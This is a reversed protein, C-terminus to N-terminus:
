PTPAPTDTTPMPTPDAPATPPAEPAPPADPKVLKWDVNGTDDKVNVAIKGGVGKADQADCTFTDGAKSTRVRDGCNVTVHVNLKKGIEDSILTELKHAILIGRIAKITVNGQDDNQNISVTAVASGFTATCDFMKDKELKVSDPCNVNTPKQKADAELTSGVFERAKEMNLKKGGCSASFQCGVFLLAVAPISLSRM